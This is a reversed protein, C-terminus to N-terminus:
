GGGFFQLGYDDGFEVVEFGCGVWLGLQACRPVPSLVASGPVGEHVSMSSHRPGPGAHRGTDTAPSAPQGSIVSGVTADVFSLAM